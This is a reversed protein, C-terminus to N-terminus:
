SGYNPPACLVLCISSCIYNPHRPPTAHRPPARMLGAQRAKCRPQVARLMGGTIEVITMNFNKACRSRADIDAYKVLENVGGVPRPRSPTAGRRAKEPRAA